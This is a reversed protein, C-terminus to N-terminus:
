AGLASLMAECTPWPGQVSAGDAGRAVDWGERVVEWRGDVLRRSPCRTVLGPNGEEWAQRRALLSTTAQDEPRGSNV